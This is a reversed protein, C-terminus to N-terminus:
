AKRGTRALVLSCRGAGEPVPVPAGFLGPAYALEGFMDMAADVAALDAETLGADLGQSVALDWRHVILDVGYFGALWGGVTAPGFYGDFQRGAVAPDALLGSVLREHSRWIQGPGGDDPPQAALGHQALFERQTSVVHDVIDRATWAGCPTAANWDATRATVSSFVDARSRWTQLATEM